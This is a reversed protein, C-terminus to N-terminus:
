RLMSEFFEIAYRRKIIDHHKQNYYNCLCSYCAVDGNSDEGCNCQKVIDLSKELMRTLQIEDAEGIRRVHGAGGPVTDFLIFNTEWNGSELRNYHLTGSIDNREIGLYQSFGELLAYVVSLARKKELYRSVSIYAVDTKFKHGLTRRYLKTNNCVRGFPTNHTEKNDIFSVDNLKENVKSYGCSNCVFFNSTNIVVLEDNSTSKIRIPSGNIKLEKQENEITETKDGIYYIEGRYTREPKKTTSKNIQPSIIFGYEPIIFTNEKRVTEGCIECEGLYKHNDESIHRKINLHGCKKNSCVGFDFLDWVKNQGTPRKIYQSKYTDGDAIVESGPAYESIAIMLDRQLRLKSSKGFSYNIANRDFSTVLEVTDVPFGYKPIINKKSLYSLINEKKIKDTYQDIKRIYDGLSDGMSAKQIADNRLKSLEELEESYQAFEKKIIGDETGLESLWVNIQNQLDSPVFANINSLVNSPLDHIYNILGNLNETDFFTGVDKYAEQNLKWYSAIIAANMHRKVIKVNETKFKPPYIRGKIMRVPSNFYTLDHSSLRCFTLSYAVSDKRRGARGARQAYNAPTPPMNKMFVTELEGVDVGMEFTTSCSLVNIENKVFMEQYRKATEPSLQATHEKVKMPFIDLGLYQNRYHNNVFDREFDCLHLEGDCRNAPCINKINNVTLKGCKKCIFWEFENNFSTKIKFKGIYMVYQDPAKAILLKRQLLIQDWIKELYMNIENKDGTELTKKLFDYRVNTGKESIWAKRYSKKNDEKSLMKSMSSEIGKYIYYEKDSKLMEKQYPFDFMCDRKFSNALVRQITLADQGKFKGIQPVGEPQFEFSILGINELSNRDNSSIEYLLTKWAEKLSDEPETVEHQEFLAALKKVAVVIEIGTDSAYVSLERLAEILLRRRLINNYTFDFYSAFYAAEQRSDSFVLLQKNSKKTILEQVTQSGSSNLGFFDDDTEISIENVEVNQSPIEEYLSSGIVSAAAEQGLYFGRLVSGQTNILGCSLCKNLVKNKPISELVKVIHQKGCDCMNGNLANLKEIKGCKGCLQYVNDEDFDDRADEDDPALTDNDNLLMYFDNIGNNEYEKKQVLYSDETKGEIYIHGCYQCVSIKYSKYEQGNIFVKDRPTISLDKNEGLVVYAGELARVFMHYRADLLMINNKEAKRAISVFAVIESEDVSLQKSVTKITVPENKLINRIDYYFKDHILFDYLLTPINQADSEFSSDYQKIIDYKSKLSSNNEVLENLKLYIKSPYKKSNTSDFANYRFARLISKEDFDAGTCLKTAFDCIDKNDKEDGLTASTLIFRIDNCSTLTHKLRSLLMSVEIGTAGTYTHAEDLVIYKWDKSHPGHFFVNDAPRLLLYELMAYNTILIHPPKEKMQQRSIRENQIPKEGNNLSMYKSFAAKDEKETEGTYAGFTISPYDALLERMRMMQDNALANMPYIILARVSHTLSRAEKQAMLYNIIPLLFSETKGSGTGTTVVLNREEKVKRISLEQHKYLNRNLIKEKKEGTYLKIFENSLVGEDILNKISKGFEFSDSFDLYPGKAFHSTNKLYERFKEMYDKEDLYFTTEIYRLYKEIINDSANIPNLGM